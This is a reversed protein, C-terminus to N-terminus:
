AFSVGLREALGERLNMHAANVEDQTLSRDPHRYVLRQTTRVRGSGDPLVFRTVYAVSEVWVGALSRVSEELVAYNMDEDHEVTMDMVVSPFRALAQFRPLGPETAADIEVEAVSLGSPLGWREGLAPAVSGAM